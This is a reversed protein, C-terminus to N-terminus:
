ADDFSQKNCTIELDRRGGIIKCDLGCKLCKKPLYKMDTFYAM